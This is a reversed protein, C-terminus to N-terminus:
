EHRDEKVIAFEYKIFKGENVVIWHRKSYYQTEQPNIVTQLSEQVILYVELRTVFGSLIFQPANLPLRSNKENEDTLPFYNFDDAETQPRRGSDFNRIRQM